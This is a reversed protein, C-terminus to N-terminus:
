RSPGHPQSPRSALKKRAPKQSPRAADLHAFQPSFAGFFRDYRRDSMLRRKVVYACFDALQLVSSRRKRQFLPDEMIRKLPLVGRMDEPLNTNPRQNYVQTERILTRAQENDEVVMLCIEDDAQRRLWQDVHLACVMYATVHAGVNLESASMATPPLNQPFNSREVSGFAVRLNHKKPIAALEDAILLRRELPWEPPSPDDPPHRKFVKGGGNFLETAHFVFDERFEPPIHREVIKDLHRVVGRLQKDGDVLVAAVVLYPEHKPNSIGAEDVYVLRVLRDGELPGGCFARPSSANM